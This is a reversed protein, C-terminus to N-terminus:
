IIGDLLNKKNQKKLHPVSYKIFGFYEVILNFHKVLQIILQNALQNTQKLPM